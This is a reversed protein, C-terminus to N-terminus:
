ENESQSESWLTTHANAFIPLKKIPYKEGSKLGHIMPIDTLGQV